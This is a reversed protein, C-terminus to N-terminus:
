RRWIYLTLRHEVSQISRDILRTCFTPGIFCQVPGLPRFQGSEGAYLHGLYVNLTLRLTLTLNPSLSITLEPNSRLTITQKGPLYVPYSNFIHAGSGWVWLFSRMPGSFIPSPDGSDKWVM